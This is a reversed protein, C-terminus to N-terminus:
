KDTDLMLTGDEVSASQNFSLTNNEVEAENKLILLEGDVSVSSNSDDVITSSSSEDGM